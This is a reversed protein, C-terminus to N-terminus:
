FMSSIHAVRHPLKSNCPQGYDTNGLVKTHDLVTLHDYSINHSINYLSSGVSTL